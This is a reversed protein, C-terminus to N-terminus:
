VKVHSNIASSMQRDKMTADNEDDRQHKPPSKDATILPVWFLGVGVAVLVNLGIAVRTNIPAYIASVAVRRRCSM